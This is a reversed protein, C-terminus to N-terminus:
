QSAKWNLDFDIAQHARGGVLSEKGLHYVLSPKYFYMPYGQSSVSLTIKYDQDGGWDKDWERLAIAAAERSLLYAQSGWAGNPNIYYDSFGEGFYGAPHPNYLAGLVLRGDVILSWNEINWRLHRNFMLDDELYLLFDAGTESLFWSLACRADHRGKDGVVSSM